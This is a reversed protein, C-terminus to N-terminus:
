ARSEELLSGLVHRYCYMYVTYTYEYSLHPKRDQANGDGLRELFSCSGASCSSSVPIHKDSDERTLIAQNDAASAETCEQLFATDAKLRM